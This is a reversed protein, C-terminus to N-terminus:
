DRKFAGFMWLILGTTAIIQVISRWGVSGEVSLDYISKGWLFVLWILGIVIVVKGTLTVANLAERVRGIAKQM